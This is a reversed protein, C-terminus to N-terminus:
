KSRGAGTISTQADAHGCIVVEITDPEGNLCDAHVLGFHERIHGEQDDIIVRFTICTWGQFCQFRPQRIVAVDRKIAIPTGRDPVQHEPLSTGIDDAADIRMDQQLRPRQRMQQFPEARVRAAVVEQLTGQQIVAELRARGVQLGGPAGAHEPLPIAIRTHVLWVALGELDLHLAQAQEGAPPVGPWPQVGAQAAEAALFPVQVLLEPLAAPSDEAMGPQAPQVAKGPWRAHGVRVDPLVANAVVVDGPGFNAPVQGRDPRVEAFQEARVDVHIGCQLPGALLGLVGQVDEVAGEEQGALGSVRLSIRGPDGPPELSENGIVAEPGLM